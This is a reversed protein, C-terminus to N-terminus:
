KIETLNEIWKVELDKRVNEKIWKKIENEVMEQTLYWVDLEIITPDDTEDAEYPFDEEYYQFETHKSKKELKKKLKENAKKADIVFTWYLKSGPYDGKVLIDLGIPKGSWHKKPSIKKEDWKYSCICEAHKNKRVPCPRFQEVCTEGIFITNKSKKFIKLIRKHMSISKKLNERSIKLNDIHREYRSKKKVERKRNNNMRILLENMTMFKPKIKFKNKIKKIWKM